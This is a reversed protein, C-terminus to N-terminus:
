GMKLWRQNIHALLESLGAVRVPQAHGARRVLVYRSGGATVAFQQQGSQAGMRQREAQADGCPNDAIDRYGGEGIGTLHIEGAEGQCEDGQCQRDQHQGDGRHAEDPQGDVLARGM